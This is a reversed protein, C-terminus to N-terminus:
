VFAHKGWRKKDVGRLVNYGGWGSGLILLREKGRPLTWSFHRTSTYAKSVRGAGHTAQFVRRALLLTTTM